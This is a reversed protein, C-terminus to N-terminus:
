YSQATSPSDYGPSTPSPVTSVGCASALNPSRKSGYTSGNLNFGCDRRIAYMNPNVNGAGRIDNQCAGINRLPALAFSSHSVPGFSRDQHPTPPTIPRLTAIPGQGGTLCWSDATSASLCLVVALEDSSKSGDNRVYSGSGQRKASQEARGHRVRRSAGERGQNVAKTKRRLNSSRSSALRHGGMLRPPCPTM